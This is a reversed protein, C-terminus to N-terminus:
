KPFATGPETGSIFAETIGASEGGVPSGSGHDVKLFIINGPTAFEPREKRTAIYRQMFDIWIPLAARAGDEGYGITKKEDHGLWVGVTIDPDFGVFWADTFEDVTGTKGALPWDISAARVATGREVVGRLLSTMVYATDARIADTPEPRNEELVNGERDTVKLVSLPRMRVGQNPFVAYASTVEVLSAEGAGLALSLFPPLPSTFGFRRAYDVVQKPTLQEMVRVAPINRSKELAHRLTIPGEYKQDYNTPAYEKGDGSPYSVPADMLVSSPTYGRDIAATYVIAKFTSGLQRQAQTARNFKSREFSYGGVMARVEGTRNDLAILAGEVLPTQELTAGFTRADADLSAVRIDILDGTKFLQGASRRNTWAFGARTLVGRYRGARLTAGEESSGTVIAPVIDGVSMPSAWREHAFRDVSSGEALVNRTPKRFGHRKDFARLGADVAQNAARQMAVDLPTQVSLGSEYLRKAGYTAELHKRVEEVFYPALSTPASPRGRVVIPENRAANAEAPTIYGEAEMRDIVYNRRRITLAQNVFPSQREPLQIIGAIVAAEGLTLDKAPKDFYLRAAAEVGYAGHGLYIQNCYFTLIERKTFRKEIQIAVIAEKIKREWTKEFGIEVPFLNRALQQTLTSAGAAKRREIIDRVLTAAIRSISL